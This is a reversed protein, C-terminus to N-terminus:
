LKRISIFSKTIYNMSSIMDMSIFSRTIHNISIIMDMSIVLNMYDHTKKNSIVM